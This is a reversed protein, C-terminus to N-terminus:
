RMVTCNWHRTTVLAEQEKAVTFLSSGHARLPLVGVQVDLGQVTTTDRGDIRPKGSLIGDRVTRYKLNRLCSPWCGM